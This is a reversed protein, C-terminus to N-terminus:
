KSKPSTRRQGSRRDGRRRDPQPPDGKPRDTKRRDEKRREDKRRDGARGDSRPLQGVDIIVTAADPNTEHLRTKAATVVLPLHTRVFECRDDDSMGAAREFGLFAGIAERSVCIARLKGNIWIDVVTNTGSARISDNEM